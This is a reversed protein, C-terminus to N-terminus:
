RSADNGANVADADPLRGAHWGGGLAQILQVSAVYRSGLLSVSTRATSLETAQATVVNIYSVVGARYQNLTLKVSERAAQLAADQVVAQQDLIRLAALYDEVEQISGLVTQRYLAVDQDYVARAQRTQADRAGGDFLTEALAPGISWFRNPLSLLNALASGQYGASGSLTLAPFYASKAVGIQANAAAVRREAAAVDPRRELLQSPLGAAPVPPPPVDALPTPPISFTSAPQGVLLAIAHELQARQVGLNIAAAQATKLQTDAAVVDARAAVGGAYQNQTLQLSKEYALITDAYLQRQADVQRLTFYDQVLQGQASLRAAALDAASAQASSTQAESARRVKGWIDPEWSATGALSLTNGIGATGAGSSSAAASRGGQARTAAANLGITPFYAARTSEVLARAQEYQAAAAKVTQNSIDVQQALANLQPDGFVEWWPGRDATDAPRAVTWGRNEKYAAPVAATPRVYDPGVACAGLLTCFAVSLVAARTRGLAIGATTSM